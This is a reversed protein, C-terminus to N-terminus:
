SWRGSTPKMIGYLTKMLSTKGAGNAGLFGYIEGQKVKMSINDLIIQGKISKSLRCTEIAYM